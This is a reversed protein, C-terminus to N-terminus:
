GRASRSPRSEAASGVVAHLFLLLARSYAEMSGSVDCLVVLKRPTSEAASRREVPDGGTALSARVLRRLDLRDGRHHPRLRRSRRQPRGSAIAQDARM